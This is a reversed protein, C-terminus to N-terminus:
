IPTTGVLTVTASFTASVSTSVESSPVSLTPYTIQKVQCNLAGGVATSTTDKDVSIKPYQIGRVIANLSASVGGTAEGADFSAEITLLPLTWTYEQTLPVICNNYITTAVFMNNYQIKVTSGARIDKTVVTVVNGLVEVSVIGDDVLNNNVYVKMSEKLDDLTTGGTFFVANDYRMTFTNYYTSGEEFENLVATGLNDTLHNEEILTVYLVKDSMSSDVMDTKVSQGVYTRGSVFWTTGSAHEVCIGIRYDPLRHVSVHVADGNEYIPSAATWVKYQLASNYAYERTYVNGDKIYGVVLGQDQEVYYISNFGQCASADTVDTDLIFATSFDAESYATLTGNTDVIFVYPTEDTEMTYKESNNRNVWQANFEVCGVKCEGFDKIAEWNANTQLSYPRNKLILRDGEFGIAWIESPSTDTPLQKISIDQVDIGADLLRTALYGGDITYLLGRVPISLQGNTCQVSVTFAHETASKDIYAHPISISAYGKEVTYVQPTYLETIGNDKIRVHVNCRETAFFSLTFHGQLDTASRLYCSILGVTYEQQAVAYAYTNYDYLLRPLAQEVGGIVTTVDIAEEACLEWNYVTVPIASSIRYVFSVYTDDSPLTIETNFVGSATESVPILYETMKGSSAIASVTVQIANNMYPSSYVSPHVVVLLKETLIPLVQSTVHYEAYGNQDLILDTGEIRANNLIYYAASKPLMNESYAM